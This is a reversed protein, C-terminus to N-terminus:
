INQTYRCDPYNGCGFFEGFRGKRKVLISGCKPCTPTDSEDMMAKMKEFVEVNMRCDGLARHADKVQVHFYETLAAMSHKMGPMALRSVKVTDIFDNGIIQGYNELCFKNLFKLDFSKINHGVIVEDGIFDLFEPMVEDMLPAKEVMENSIHNVAMASRGIPQEPNVLTSFEEVVQGGRVKVAAVEIIKDRESSLGTTELDFLVYDDRKEILEKGQTTGLM